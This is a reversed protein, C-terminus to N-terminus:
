PFDFKQGSKGYHYVLIDGRRDVRIGNLGPNMPIGGPNRKAEDLSSAAESTAYDIPRSCQFADPKQRIKEHHPFQQLLRFVLELYDEDLQEIEEKLREKTIM